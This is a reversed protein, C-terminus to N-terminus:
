QPQKIVLVSCNAHTTIRDSVSGLLFRRVGTRGHSGVVILQVGEEQALELIENAPDGERYVGRTQYGQAKIVAASRELIAQAEQRLQEALVGYDIYPPGVFGIAGTNPNPIVTTILVEQTKAPLFDGLRGLADQSFTSGDTAVLVKM